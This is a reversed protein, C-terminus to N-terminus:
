SQAGLLDLQGDRAPRARRVATRITVVWGGDPFEVGINRPGPGHGRATVRCSQGKREPLFRRLYWVYPYESM